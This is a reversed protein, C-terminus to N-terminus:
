KKGGKFSAPRTKKSVGGKKGGSFKKSGPKMKRLTSENFDELSESSNRKANRKPGGFGFKKNKFDRKGARNKDGDHKSPRDIEIGFDNDAGADTGARHSSSHRKTSHDKKDDDLDTLMGRKKAIKIKELANKKIGDREMQKEHQVKKGFKKLDRQKKARESAKIGEAEEVLRQRVRYMHQDSKVMEAFYDSPRSFPIKYQSCLDRAAKAAELSQKYIALERELDNNVDPVDDSTATQSTITQTEHWSLFSGHKIDDLRALLAEKKNAYVKEVLPEADLPSPEPKQHQMMELYIEMEREDESNMEIRTEETEDDDMIDDTTPKDDSETRDKNSSKETMDNKKVSAKKASALQATQKRKKGSGSGSGSLTNPVNDDQMMQAVDDDMEIAQSEIFSGIDFEANSPILEPAPKSAPGGTRKLMQQKHQSKTRMQRQQTKGM